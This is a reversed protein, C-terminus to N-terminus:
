RECSKEKKYSKEKLRQEAEDIAKLLEERNYCNIGRGDLWYAKPTKRVFEIIEKNIVDVGNETATHFFMDKYGYHKRKDKVRIEIM